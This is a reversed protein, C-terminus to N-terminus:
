NDNENEKAGKLIEKATKECAKQWEKKEMTTGGLARLTDQIADFLSFVMVKLTAIETLYNNDKKM